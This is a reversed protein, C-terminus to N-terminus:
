ASGLADNRWAVIVAAAESAGIFPALVVYSLYDSLAPLLHARGASVECNIIHWLAGAIGEVVLKNRPRRPAGETLLTAVNHSLEIMREISPTGGAFMQLGITVTSVPNSALHNTFEDMTRCVSHAWDASVLGPDAVLALIEDGLMDLAALYCDEKNAFLELFEEVSSNAEEAIWPPSLEEYDERLSLNLVSGMLRERPDRIKRLDLQPVAPFSQTACPRLALREVAPSQFLLTWRLMEDALRTLGATSGDRLRLYTARRLGGVIARVIPPPIPDAGLRLSIEPSATTADARPAVGPSATTADARPAVGPSATTADARPAVGPSATTADAHLAVESDASATDPQLPTETTTATPAVSATATEYSEALLVTAAHLTAQESSPLVRPSSFGLALLREFAATAKRLRRLGEPGATQADVVVLHIAKSNTEVEDVFAKFGARMRHEMSGPTSRYANNIRKIARQVILDFTELFCHEKNAFQEYFARRSVGALAIVQKVSTQEYGDSTVAEIIAGHMRIRQHHIVQQRALGHPGKPLRKYMPATTGGSLGRGGRESVSM